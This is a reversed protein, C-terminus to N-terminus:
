LLVCLLTELYLIWLSICLSVLCKGRLILLTNGKRLWDLFGLLIQQLVECKLM